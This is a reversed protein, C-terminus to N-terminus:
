FPIEYGDIITYNEPNLKQSLLFSHAQKWTAFRGFDLTPGHNPYVGQCIRYMKKAANIRM